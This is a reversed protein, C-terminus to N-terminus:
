AKPIDARLSPFRKLVATRLKFGDLKSGERKLIAVGDRYTKPASNKSEGETAPPIEEEEKDGPKLAELKAQLDAVSKTLAANTENAKALEADKAALAAKHDAEAADSLEVTIEEDTKGKSLAVAIRAAHKEGHRKLLAVIRDDPKSMTTETTPTSRSAAVSGTNADAGFLCVSAESIVGNRCILLPVDHLDDGATIVRGNVDVSTGPMVREYDSLGATIKVSAQWPHNRAMLAAVEGGVRLSNMEMEAPKTPDPTYVVPTGYIGTQDAIGNTWRGIPGYWTDHERLMPIEPAEFRASALDIVLRCHGIGEVWTQMEAGSNLRWRKPKDAPQEIQSVPAACMVQGTRLAPRQTHDQAAPM